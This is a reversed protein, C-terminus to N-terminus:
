DQLLLLKLCIKASAPRFKEIWNLKQGFFGFKVIFAQSKLTNKKGKSVWFIFSYLLLVSKLCFIVPRTEMRRPAM